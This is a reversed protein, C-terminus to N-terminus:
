SSPPVPTPQRGPAQQGVAAPQTYPIAGRLNAGDGHGNNRSLRLIVRYGRRQSTGTHWPRAQHKLVGHSEVDREM